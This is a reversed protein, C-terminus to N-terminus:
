RLSWGKETAISRNCTSSGPNDEIYILGDPPHPLGSLLANLAEETLQNNGCGLLILAKNRSV